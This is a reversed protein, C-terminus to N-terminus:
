ATVTTEGCTATVEWSVQSAWDDGLVSVAQQFDPNDSENTFIDRTLNYPNALFDAAITAIVEQAEKNTM